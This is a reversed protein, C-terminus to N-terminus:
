VASLNGYSYKKNQIANRHASVCINKAHEKDFSRYNGTIRDGVSVYDALIDQDPYLTYKTKNDAIITLEGNVVSILYAINGDESKKIEEVTGSFDVTTDRTVFIVTAVLLVAVIILLIKGIIRFKTKM